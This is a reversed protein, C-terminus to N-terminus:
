KIKELNGMWVEYEEFNQRIHGIPNEGIGDEIVGVFFREIAVKLTVEEFADLSDHYYQNNKVLTDFPKDSVLTIIYDGKDYVCEMLVDKNNFGAMKRDYDENCWLDIWDYQGDFNNIDYQDIKDLTSLEIRDGYPNPYIVLPLKYKISYM